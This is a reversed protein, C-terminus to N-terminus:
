KRRVEQIERPTVLFKLTAYVGGHGYSLMTRNKEVWTAVQGSLDDRELVREIDEETYNRRKLQDVVVDLLVKEPTLKEDECRRILTNCGEVGFPVFFSAKRPPERARVTRSM